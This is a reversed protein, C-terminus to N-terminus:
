HYGQGFQCRVSRLQELQGAMEVGEAVTAMQLTRGLEIIGRALAAHATDEQVGDVFSKDIKLVDVPLERLYSLSSYGTGFDDVALRIGLAKLAHLRARLVHNADLLMGETIELTLAAAPVQHEELAARVDQVLGPDELQRVSLNVCLGLDPHDLRWAVVQACAERLVWRGVETIVGIEEALPVFSAPPIRGLRPHDWRVLAEVSAVRGSELDIVPQYQVFLEGRTVARQLDAELEVRQSVAHYMVPEFRAWRGRGDKKARYMALDANRLLDDAHDCLEGSFAVGISAGILVRKGQVSFPRSLRDIIRQAALTATEVAGEELLVAFEDGGFRAATTPARLCSRLRRAVARLLEDGAGHGLTDNVAKFRDLDVFLVAARRQCRDPGPDLAEEVRELFLARNPLGTLSDHFAEQVAAVTRADTLAISAHEAFNAMLRRDHGDFAGGEGVDAVMAGATAGGVHVAATLGEVAEEGAMAAAARAVVERPVDRGGATLPQTGSAAIPRAPDLSDQLFLWVPRGGLLSSAGSTVADLIQPLPERHSITRQVSLLTELLQQRERESALIRLNRVSLGLVRAMGALLNREEPAFPECLRGVLLRDRPTLLEAAVLNCRGAEGLCAESSGGPVSLLEEEPVAQSGFGVTTAVAGDIIVAGLEAELVESALE